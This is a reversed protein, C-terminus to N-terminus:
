HIDRDEKSPKSLGDRITRSAAFGIATGVTCSMAHYVFLIAFMGVVGAIRDVAIGLLQHAQAAIMAVIPGFLALSMGVLVKRKPAVYTSAFSAVGPVLLLAVDLFEHPGPTMLDFLYILHAAVLTGVGLLVAKLITWRIM